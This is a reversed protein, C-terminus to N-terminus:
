RAAKRGRKPLPLRTSSRGSPPSRRKTGRRSRPCAPAASRSACLRRAPSSCRPRGLAMGAVAFTSAVRGLNEAIAVPDDLDCRIRLSEALMALADEIRGEDRAYSALQDLSYAVIRDDSQERARSCATRKCLELANSTASPMSSWRLTTPPWYRTITTGSSVSDDGARKSSNNHVRLRRRRGSRCARAPIRLPGRGVCGRARSVARTGGRGSTEDDRCRWGRAGHRGSRQSSQCPGSYSDRVRPARRRSTTERGGRARQPVLVAVTSGGLALCSARAQRRSGTSLPECTTTSANSDTSGSRQLERERTPEAGGGRRTGPLARRPPARLDDAEGSEDLREAPSSASRRSCGSDSTRTACCARTSSHSCSTSIPRRLRRRLRSRAAAASSPCAPSCVDAGRRHPTRVVVRDDGQAHAPARPCDRAGGTLLPLRQDLRELIQEPSLAKVRAAALELALPLDDLRRCIESVADDAQFDPEVARARALFFGVGEEHVFPPM